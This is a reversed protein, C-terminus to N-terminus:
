DKKQAAIWTKVALAAMLVWIFWRLERELTVWALVAFAAYAAFATTLKRNM